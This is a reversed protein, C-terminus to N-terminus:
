ILLACHKRALAHGGFAHHSHQQLLLFLMIQFSKRGRCLSIDQLINDDFEGGGGGGEGDHRTFHLGRAMMVVRLGNQQSSRNLYLLTLRSGRM